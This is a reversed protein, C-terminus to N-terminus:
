HNAVALCNAQNNSKHGFSELFYAFKIEREACDNVVHLYPLFEKYKMFGSFLELNSPNIKISEM